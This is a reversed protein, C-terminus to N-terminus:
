NGNGHLFDFLKQAAEEFAGVGPLLIRDAREIVSKDGSLVADVGVAKFSSAISFLNGVGYDVIVTM